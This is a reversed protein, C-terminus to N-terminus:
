VKLWAGPDVAPPTLNIFSFLKTEQHLGLLVGLPSPATQHDHFPM